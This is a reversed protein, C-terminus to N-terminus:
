RRPIGRGGGALPGRASDNRCDRLGPSRRRSRSRFRDPSSRAASRTLWDSSSWGPSGELCSRAPRSPPSCAPPRSWRRPVSRRRPQPWSPTVSSGPARLPYRPWGRSGTSSPTAVAAALVAPTGGAPWAPGLAELAARAPGEGHGLLAALLATSSSPASSSGSRRASRRWRASPCRSPAKSPCPGCRDLVGSRASCRPRSRGSCGSDTSARWRARPSGTPATGCGSGSRSGPRSVQRFPTERVVAAARRPDGGTLFELGLGLTDRAREASARFADLDGPDAGDAVLAGNFLGRLEALATEAEVADLGGLAAEVFNRRGSTRALEGPRRRRPEPLRVAAYLGAASEPDPFGLDALRAWRFRLATEELETPMEWRLAELLRSFAFPDEGMLDLLLARLAAQEPGELTLELRYRGDASDLTVGEVPPDPTEELDHVVTFARLMSELLELDLGHLKRLLPEPEDGRAARLWELLGHPDFTDRKWAGLDVLAQFQAPSALQVVDTADALGVEAVTAYLQEPPMAQVLAAAESSAILADLRERAPLVSIRQLAAARESAVDRGNGSSAM